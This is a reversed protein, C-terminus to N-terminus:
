NRRLEKELKEFDYVNQQFSRYSNAPKNNIYKTERRVWCRVANKWNTMPVKGCVWGVSEYYNWFLEADIQLGKESAYAEIEDVTPKKFPKKEKKPHLAPKAPKNKQKVRNIRKDLIKDRIDISCKHQVQTANCCVNTSSNDELGLRMSAELAEARKKARSKRSRLSSETIQYTMDPIDVMDMVTSADQFEIAGIKEFFDITACVDEVNEEIMLAIEAEFSPEFGEFYLKGDTDLSELLMELYIRIFIAGSASKKLKRMEKTKFFDRKLKLFYLKPNERKNAM